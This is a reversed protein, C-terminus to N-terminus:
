LRPVLESARVLMAAEAKQSYDISHRGVAEVGEALVAQALIGVEYASMPIM